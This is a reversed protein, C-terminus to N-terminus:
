QEEGGFLARVQDRFKEEYLTYNWIMFKLIYNKIEPYDDGFIPSGGFDSHQHIHKNNICILELLKEATIEPYCLSCEILGDRVEKTKAIAEIGFTKFFQEQIDSM